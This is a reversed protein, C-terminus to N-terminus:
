ARQPRTVHAIKKEKRRQRKVEINPCEWKFHRVRWCRFCRVEEQCRVEVEGKVGYQIVRNV